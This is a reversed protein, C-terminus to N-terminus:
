NIKDIIKTFRKPMDTEFEMYMGTRPHIFGIKISHLLQGKLNFKTKRRSYTPDGVIPHHEHAFHVRIQHTRGTELEAEVLTYESYRKLVSYRTIAEKGNTELVAMKKRDRTDRGIPANIIGSDDRVVGHVLAIYVRKIDRKKLKDALFRHADNNKAIILLGSTDKDLRHVIGPRIIENLSSLSDMHYLLGNVLTGSYNGPAPHVVMGQSKNIIAIDDDEYVIDLDINEPLIEIVKPKPITIQIVDGEKITYRPKKKEGNVLVLGERILGQIKTRSVEDLENSLYSDLRGDDEENVYLEILNM